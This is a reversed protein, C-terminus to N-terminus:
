TCFGLATLVELYNASEFGLTSTSLRKMGPFWTDRYAEVPRRYTLELSFHQPLTLRYQSLDTKLVGEVSEKIRARATCPALSITALGIGQLTAVTKIGPIKQAAEDCIHADGWLFAVPVGVSAAAYAHVLFESASEGNLEIKTMKGSFTHALPIGDSGGRAHYGVFMLADFSNDLGDVMMFPHGSWGRMLRACYPLKEGLINRGTGHGDKVVIDTAGAEIAGECAAVVEGTMRERFEVYSPHDKNCEDQHTVGAIGEMDASIYIKV